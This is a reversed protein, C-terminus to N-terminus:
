FIKLHCLEYNGKEVIDTEPLLLIQFVRYIALYGAAPSVACKIEKNNGMELGGNSLIYKIKTHRTHNLKNWCDPCFEAM